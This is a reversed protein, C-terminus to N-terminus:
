QIWGQEKFRIKIQDAIEKATAKARGEVENMDLIKTTLGSDNMVMGMLIYLPLAVMPANDFGAFIRQPVVLLLSPNHIIFYLLSSIGLSYAVPVGIILLLFLSGMLTLM